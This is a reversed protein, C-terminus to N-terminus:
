AGPPQWTLILFESSSYNKSTERFYALDPDGQLLLADSSADLRTKDVQSLAALGLLSLLVLLPIARDVVLRKYLDVM